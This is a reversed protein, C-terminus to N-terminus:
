IHMKLPISNYKKVGEIEKLAYHQQKLKFLLLLACLGSWFSKNETDTLVTESSGRNYDQTKKQSHVDCCELDLDNRDM